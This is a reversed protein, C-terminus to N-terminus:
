MVSCEGGEDTAGPREPHKRPPGSSGLPDNMNPIAGECLDFKKETPDFKQSSSLRPMQEFNREKLIEHLRTLLAPYSRQGSDERIAQTLAVTMAGGFAGQRKADMSTQNDECGSLMQVDGATFKTGGIEAWNSEWSQWIFPLDVATGSHCCDLIITLKVGSQLPTVILDFIEDDVLMGAQQYDGPVLTEDKGDAENFSGAQQSGHGSYQWFLVDGPQAGAALWRLGSKINAKTPKKRPDSQDDTLVTMNDEEFSFVETLVGKWNEVDNICGRLEASTGPYNIGVLLAKKRGTMEPPPENVHEAPQQGVAAQYAEEFVPVKRGNRIADHSAEETKTLAAQLEAHGCSNFFTIVQGAPGEEKYMPVVDWAPNEFEFVVAATMCEGWAGYIYGNKDVAPKVNGCYDKWTKGNPHYQRLFAGAGESAGAEIEERAAEEGANLLPAFKEYGCHICFDIVQGGAGNDKYEPMETWNPNTIEFIAASVMCEQWSGCLKGDGTSAPPAPGCYDKWRQGNPATREMFPFETGRIARAGSTVGDTAERAAKGSWLWDLFEATNIRGDSNCDAERFLQAVTEDTWMEADIEQLVTRLEDRDITGNGDVDFKDFAEKVDAKEAESVM